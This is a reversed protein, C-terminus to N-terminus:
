RKPIPVILIRGDGSVVLTADDPSAVMSISEYGGLISYPADTLDIQQIEPYEDVPTLPQSIDYILIRPQGGGHHYVYASRSDHSTIASGLRLTPLRGILKLRGDHVLQDNVIVRDANGSVSLSALDYSVSADFLSSTRADYISVSRDPLQGRDGIFVKSGDASAAATGHLFRSGMLSKSYDGIEALSTRKLYYLYALTGSCSTM